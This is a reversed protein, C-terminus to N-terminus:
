LAKQVSVKIYKLWFPSTFILYILVGLQWYDGVFIIYVLNSIMVALSINIFTKFYKFDSLAFPVIWLMYWGKLNKMYFFIFLYLIVLISENFSVNSNEKSKMMLVSFYVVTAIILFNCMYNILTNLNASKWGISLVLFQFSQSYRSGEKLLGDLVNLDRAYPLFSLLVIAIMIGMYKLISIINKHRIIYIYYFPVLLVTIYKALLSLTLFIISFKFKDNYLFYLSVLILTIILMDNHVNTLGEFLIFPNLAYCYVYKNNNTIKYILYCNYLHLLLNFIKFIFLGYVLNGNSITMLIKSVMMWVPGYAAKMNNWSVFKLMEDNKFNIVSNISEYYPNGLYKIQQWGTGIYYYVDSSIIPLILTYLISIIIIYYYKKSSNLNDINKTYIYFTTFIFALFYIVNLYWNFNENSFYFIKFYFDNNYIRWYNFISSICIPMLVLIYALYYKDERISKM